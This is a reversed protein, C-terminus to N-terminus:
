LLLVNSTLLMPELVIERIQFITHLKAVNLLHCGDKENGCSTNQVLAQLKPLPAWPVSMCCHLTECVGSDRDNLVLVSTDDSILM